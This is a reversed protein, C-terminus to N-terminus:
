YDKEKAKEEALRQASDDLTSPQVPPESDATRWRGRTKLYFIQASLDDQEYAKAYLKGAVRRVAVANATDIEQRYHKALTDISIGLIKAIVDQTTGFAVHSSVEARTEITPTHKDHIAM